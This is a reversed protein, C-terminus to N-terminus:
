AAAVLRNDAPIRLRELGHEAFEEEYRQMLQTFVNIRTELDLKDHQKAEYEELFDRQALQGVLEERFLEKNYPDIFLHKLEEKYDPTEYYRDEEKSYKINDEAGMDRSYSLITKRLTSYDMLRKKSYVDYTHMMWDALYLMDLLSKYEKKSFNIKM